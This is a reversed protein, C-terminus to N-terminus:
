AEFLNQYYDDVFHELFEEDLNMYKEKIMQKMKDARKFYKQEEVMDEMGTLDKDIIAASMNEECWKTIEMLLTGESKAKVALVRFSKMSIVGFVIFLVFLVGMVGCILYRTMASNQYFPLVGTLILLVVAVGLIGVVLLTYASSKNEEAQSASDRYAKKWEKKPVDSSEMDADMEDAITGDVSEVDTDMENVITGDAFVVDADMEVAAQEAEYAELSEVLDAGCDACVTIGERYENKCVPCWAM